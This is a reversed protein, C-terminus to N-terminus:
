FAAEDEVELELDIPDNMIENNFVNPHPPIRMERPGNNLNLNHNHNIAETEECGIIVIEGNEDLTVDTVRLKLKFARNSTLRVKEKCPRQYNSSIDSTKIGLKTENAYTILADQEETNSCIHANRRKKAQVITSNNDVEICGIYENDKSMSIIFLSGSQVRNDYGGVCIGMESGIKILEKNSKAVTFLIGNITKNDFREIFDDEYVYNVPKVKIKNADKAIKDHLDKLRLRNNPLKYDPVASIIREYNRYTDRYLRINEVDRKDPRKCLANVVASEGHVRILETLYATNFSLEFHYYSRYSKKNEDSNMLFTNYLKNRNDNNKFIKNINNFASFYILNTNTSYVRSFLNNFVKRQNKTTVKLTKLIDKELNLSRVTKISKPLIKMSEIPLYEGCKMRYISSYKSYPIYPNQNYAIMVAFYTSTSILNNNVSNIMTDDNLVNDGFYTNIMENVTEEKNSLNADKISDILYKHFPIIYKAKEPEFEKINKEIAYGISFFEKITLKFYNSHMQASAISLQEITSLRKKADIDYDPIKYSRGTRTNIVIKRSINRKKYKDGFVGFKTDVIAITIKEKDLDFVHRSITPTMGNKIMLINSTDVFDLERNCTPCTIKYISSLYNYLDKNYGDFYNNINLNRLGYEDKVERKVRYKNYSNLFELGIIMEFDKLLELKGCESCRFLVGKKLEIPSGEKDKYQKQVVAYNNEANCITRGLTKFGNVLMYDKYNKIQKKEMEDKVKNEIHEFTVGADSLFYTIADIDVREEDSSKFYKFINEVKIKFYVHLDNVGSILTIFKNDKSYQIKKLFEDEPISYLKHSAKRSDLLINEIYDKESDKINIIDEMLKEYRFKDRTYGNNRQQDIAIQIADMDNNLFLLNNINAKRLREKDLIEIAKQAYINEAPEEEFNSFKIQEPM